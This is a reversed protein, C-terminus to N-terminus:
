SQTSLVCLSTHGVVCDAEQGMHYAIVGMIGVENCRKDEERIRSIRFFSTAFVKPANSM